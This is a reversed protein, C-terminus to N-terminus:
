PPVVFMGLRAAGDTEYVVTVYSSQGLMDISVMIVTVFPMVTVYQGSHSMCVM